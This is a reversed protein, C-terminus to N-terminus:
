LLAVVRQGIVGLGFAFQLVQCSVSLRLSLYRSCSEWCIRFVSVLAAHFRNVVRIRDEMYSCCSQLRKVYGSLELLLNFRIDWAINCYRDRGQLHLIKCDMSSSCYKATWPHVYRLAWKTTNEDSNQVLLSAVLVSLYPTIGAKKAVKISLSAYIPISDNSACILSFQFIRFVCWTPIGASQLIKWTCIYCQISFTAWSTQNRKSQFWVSVQFIEPAIVTLDPVYFM